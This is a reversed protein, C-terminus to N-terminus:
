RGAKTVTRKRKAQARMKGFVGNTVAKTGVNGTVLIGFIWKMFDFTETSSADGIFHMTLASIFLGISVVLKRSNWKSAETTAAM